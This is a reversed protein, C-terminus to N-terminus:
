DAQELSRVQRIFRRIKQHDKKGPLSEVGSGVDVGFPRVRRIAEAVNDSSLGGSLIIRYKSSVDAALDWNFIKGTGGPQGKVYTDLLYADVEYRALDVLSTKNKVRIAKITKISGFSRCFEPSEQGHFQLATLPCSAIVKQIEQAGQNLFVGVLSVLPPLKEAIRVAQSLEIRRPSKAFIFGLADAGAEVVALADETRTIGCIKIRTM